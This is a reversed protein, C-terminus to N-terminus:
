YFIRLINEFDEQPIDIVILLISNSYASSIKSEILFITSYNGNHIHPM